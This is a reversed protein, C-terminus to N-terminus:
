IMKLKNIEHKAIDNILYSFNFKLRNELNIKSGTM